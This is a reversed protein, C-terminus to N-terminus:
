IVCYYDVPICKYIKASYLGRGGGGGTLPKNLRYWQPFFLPVLPLSSPFHLYIPPFDFIYHYIYRRLIPSIFSSFTRSIIISCLM